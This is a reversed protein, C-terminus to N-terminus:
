INGVLVVKSAQKEVKHCPIARTLVKNDYYSKNTEVEWDEYKGADDLICTYGANKPKWWVTLDSHTHNLSLIYYKM